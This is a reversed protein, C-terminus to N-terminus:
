RPVGPTWVAYRADPRDLAAALAPLADAFWDAMQWPPNLLLMQSGSLRGPRDAADPCFEAALMDGLGASLLEGHFAGLLGRDKVPLWVAFVGGPFRRHAAILTASLRQWEDPAEFPPDLHILGRKEPPPLFPKLAAYGDRVHVAVGAYGSLAQKLRSGDEPHLECALLRDGPRLAGALLCPSGPYVHLAGGPNVATVGARLAALAPHPPATWLRVIGEGAEGTRAAADGLLDYLGGGGHTDIVCLPTPKIQMRRLVELLTLHKFLDAIGGAHFAHRYNM